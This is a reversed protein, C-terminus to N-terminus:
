FSASERAEADRVTFRFVTGGGPNDEAWLRGAHAEVISRCVSLGVGMGHDKTTVFPQFLRSRVTEALGQGTDAVSIEVMDAPGRRAAIALERRQQHQMAEIGNRLLNFIVQQVQIKDILVRLGAPNMAVSMDLGADKVFTRTLM